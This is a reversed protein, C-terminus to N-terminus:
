LRQVKAFKVPAVNRELGPAPGECSGGQLDWEIACIREAEDRVFVLLLRSLQLFGTMGKKAADDRSNPLFSWTDYHYHRLKATQRPLSNINLLLLEPNPLNKVEEEPIKSIHLQIKLGINVFTGTFDDLPPQRTNQTRKKVWDEVLENWLLTSNYAAQEAYDELRVKPKMDFLEQCLVQAILDSPDGRYGDCNSLVVM